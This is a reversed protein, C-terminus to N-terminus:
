IPAKQATPYLKCALVNEPRYIVTKNIPSYKPKERKILAALKIKMVSKLFTYVLNISKLELTYNVSWFLLM